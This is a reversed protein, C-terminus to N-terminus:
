ATVAHRKYHKMSKTLRKVERGAIEVVDGLLQGFANALVGGLFMQVRSSRVAKSLRKLARKQKQKKAM